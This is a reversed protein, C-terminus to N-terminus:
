NLCRKKGLFQTLKLSFQRIERIQATKFTKLFYTIDNNRTKIKSTTYGCIVKLRPILSEYMKIRFVTM